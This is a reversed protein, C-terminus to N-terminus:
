APTASVRVGREPSPCTMTPAPRRGVGARRRLVERPPRYAGGKSERGPVAKAARDQADSPDRQRADIRSEIPVLAEGAGAGGVFFHSRRSGIGPRSGVFRRRWQAQRDFSELHEIVSNSLVVDFAGDPFESLDADRVRSEINPHVDPELELHSAGPARDRAQGM